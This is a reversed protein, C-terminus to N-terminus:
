GTMQPIVLLAVIAQGATVYSKFEAGQEVLLLTECATKLM